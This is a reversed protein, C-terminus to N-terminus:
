EEFRAKIASLLNEAGRPVASGGTLETVEECATGAYVLSATGCCSAELVTMGFTEDVSTNIYLDAATYIEVLQQVTKTRPLALISAPMKQIQDERLGVLVIKYRDDLLGSLEVFDDLGKRTDWVNAVGLLLIKDELGYEARFSGPTPKFVHTDVQNHVVTVPYEGLFGLKVRDALWQSPTVLSMNPIGTFAKKKRLYNRRSNDVGWSEPYEHNEPCHHCQQKWKDCGVHDFYACHGTFAWCDHLTWKITKGCDRLYAFLMGLHLYYGHLNHLWIVDPDYDRVQKLFRATALRTGFGHNDFLRNLLVNVKNDLDSGIRITQIDDCNAIYRGYAIRCEHGQAMLERCTDAVIRGTSGWGACSNIFLYKM